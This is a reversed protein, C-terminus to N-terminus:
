FIKVKGVILIEEILMSYQYDLVGSINLLYNDNQIFEHKGVKTLCLKLNEIILNQLEDIKCFDNNDYQYIKVFTGFKDKTYSHKGIRNFLIIQIYKICNTHIDNYM